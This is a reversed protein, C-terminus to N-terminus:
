KRLVSPHNSLVSPHDSVVSEKPKYHYRTGFDPIKSNPENIISNSDPTIKTTKPGCGSFLSILFILIILTISILSKKM